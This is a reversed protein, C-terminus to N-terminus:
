DAPLPALLFRLAPWRKACADIAAHPTEGDTFFGYGIVGHGRKLRRGTTANERVAV